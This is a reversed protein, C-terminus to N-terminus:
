KSSSAPSIDCRETSILLKEGRYNQTAFLFRSGGDLLHWKKRLEAVTAPFGRVALNAKTGRLQATDRKGVGTVSMTQFIRGPFTSVLTDSTYLHSLPALKKIGFRPCLLRMAGAKLLSPAPEYLYRAPRETYVPQAAQEEPSSFVFVFDSERCYITPAEASSATDADAICLLEKCEGQVSVIHVERIGVLARVVATIDLMPSLKLMVVSAKQLLTPWLAEVQPTCDSLAVVKRGASDRRAPDLLVLDAHPMARLVEEAEGEVVEAHRIGMLPLNHRVIHCLSANREVYCAEQFHRALLTFDVGYGGTLDVFSGGEPLIRKAIDYKYRATEESSCQEVSIRPPFLIGTTEAWSPVKLRLRQYGEIQQLIFPADPNGTLQLALTNVNESRHQLIYEDISM